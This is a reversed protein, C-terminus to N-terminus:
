LIHVPECGWSSFFWFHISLCTFYGIGFMCGDAERLSLQGLMMRRVLFSVVGLRVYLLELNPLAGLSPPIAGSLKTRMITIKKLQQMDGISSPISGELDNFSLDMEELAALESISEPISGKLGNSRLNLKTVRGDTDCVIGFWECKDSVKTDAWGSAKKWGTGNCGEFIDRLADEERTHVLTFCVLLIPLSLWWQRCM